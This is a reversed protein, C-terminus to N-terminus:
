HPRERHSREAPAPEITVHHRQAFEAGHADCVFHEAVLVRGAAASRFYRWTVVTVPNRCRRTECHKGGAAFRAADDAHIRWVV